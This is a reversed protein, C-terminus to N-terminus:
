FSYTASSLLGCDEVISQTEAPFVRMEVAKWDIGQFYPHQAPDKGEAGLRIDPNKLLLAQIFERTIADMGAPFDPQCSEFLDWQRQINIYRFPLYGAEMRFALVGLAWWDCAFTHKQNRIIEPAIFPKTGRVATSPYARKVSKSIGFDALRIHGNADLLINEPKLDMHVIGHSHLEKLATVIEALYVRIETATLKRDNIATRLSGGPMYELVFQYTAATEYFGHFRPLWRGKVSKYVDLETQVDSHILGPIDKNIVKIAVRELTRRDRALYVQGCAGQGIPEIAKFGDISIPNSSLARIWTQAMDDTSIEPFFIRQSSDEFEIVFGSRSGFSLPRVSLIDFLDFSESPRSDPASSLFARHEDIRCYWRNRHFMFITCTENLYGELRSGQGMAFKSIENLFKPAVVDSFAL